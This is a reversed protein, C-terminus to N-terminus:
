KNYRPANEILVTGVIISAISIAHHQSLSSIKNIIKPKNTKKNTPHHTQTCDRHNEEESVSEHDLEQISCRLRSPVFVNKRRRKGYNTTVKFPFKSVQRNGSMVDPHNDNNFSLSYLVLRFKDTNTVNGERPRESWRITCTRWVAAAWVNDLWVSRAM